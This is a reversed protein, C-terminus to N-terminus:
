RVQANRFWPEHPCRGYRVELLSQLTKVIVMLAARLPGRAVALSGYCERTGIVMARGNANASGGSRMFAVSQRLLRIEVPPRIREIEYFQVLDAALRLKDDFGGVADLIKRSAFLGQHPPYLGSARASALLRPVRRRRWFGHRAPAGMVVDGAILGPNHPDGREVGSMAAKLVSPSLLYDDANLFLVYEGRSARLGKNMADYIGTDPEFVRQVVGSRTAWREIIERTGDTSGGDVLVHEFCFPADQACVSALTDEITAAANLAVTVVSVLPEVSAGPPTM